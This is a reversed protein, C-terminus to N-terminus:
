DPISKRPKEGKEAPKKFVPVLEILVDTGEPPLRETYAEFLLSEEGTASSQMAVDIMATPFNAVCILDGGEAQYFKEGTKEDVYVGSGAFVWDAKMERPQSDEFFSQVAQRFAKNGSLKLFEDRQRDSMPGYWTLEQHKKDFRLESKEPLVLGEPLSEMKVVYFRRIAHRVWSQATDRHLKGQQDTWQLFIDIKQGTPPQFEPDFQVPKGPQAGLALLGTHIVYAKADVSLISEHEKTQKLCCLMELLGDRFVVKAKLL